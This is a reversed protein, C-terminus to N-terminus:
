VRASPTLPWRGLRSKILAAECMRLCEPMVGMRCASLVREVREGEMKM